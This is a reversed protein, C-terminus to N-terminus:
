RATQGIGPKTRYLVFGACGGCYAALLAFYYQGIRHFADANSSLSVKGIKLVGDQVVYGLRLQRLILGLTIRLPVNEVDIRVPSWMKMGLESMAVEDVYIPIGNDKEGATVTRIYKLVDELATDTPFPMPVPQDLEAQIHRNLQDIQGDATYSSAGSKSDASRHLWVDLHDLAISTVVEPRDAREGLWSEWTLAMSGWGFLTFGLWFARRAETRYIVALIAYGLIALTMLLVIASTIESPFRLSALVLGMGLPLGMMGAVSIRLHAM